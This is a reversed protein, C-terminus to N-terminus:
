QKKILSELQKRRAQAELEAQMARQQHLASVKSANKGNSIVSSDDNTLDNLPVIQGNSMQQVKGADAGVVAAARRPLNSWPLSGQGWYDGFEVNRANGVPLVTDLSTNGRLSSSGRANTKERTEFLRDITALAEERETANGKTYAAVLKPDQKAIFNTYDIAKEGDPSGAKNADPFRRSILKDVAATRDKVNREELDSATKARDDALKAADLASIPKPASQAHLTAARDASQAKIQEGKLVNEASNNQAQLTQGRISTTNRADAELASNRQNEIELLRKNENGKGKASYSGAVKNAMADFRANIAGSNGASARALNEAEAKQADKLKDAALDSQLKAVADLTQQSEQRNPDGAGVFSNIRGGPKTSTGYINDPGMFSGLNVFQGPQTGNRLGTKPTIGESMVRGQEDTVNPKAMNIDLKVPASAQTAADVGQESLFRSQALSRPSPAADTPRGQPPNNSLSTPPGFDQGPAQPVNPKPEKAALFADRETPASFGDSFSGGNMASSIGQGLKGAYGFTIANGVNGMTRLADAGVSTMYPGVGGNSASGSGVRGDSGMGISKNFHDRYGNDMDNYSQVAGTMGGIAGAAGGILGKALNGAGGALRRLASPKTAEVPAAPTPATPTPTAGVSSQAGAGTPFAARNRAAAERPDFSMPQVPPITRATQGPVTAMQTGPLKRAVEGPVTALNQGAPIRVGNTMPRGDPGIEIVGGAAMHRLGRQPERGDNTGRVLEDLEEPGGLKQVTKAPLVYEGNSLMAPVKDERPGGPGQVAGGSAMRIRRLASKKEFNKQMNSM